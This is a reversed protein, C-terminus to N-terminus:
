RDLFRKPIDPHDCLNLELGVWEGSANKAQAGITYVGYSSVEALLARRGGDRMRRIWITSKPYSDHLHFLVPGELPSETISEVVADFLFYDTAVETIKVSLKLGNREALGGWRGKQPDEEDIVAPPDPPPSLPNIAIEPQTTSGLNGTSGSKELHERIASATVGYNAQGNEGQQLHMALIQWQFNFCPSGSSGAMSNIQYSVQSRESNISAIGKQDVQLTLPGDPSYQVMVVPMGLEVVAASGALDIWGRVRSSAQITESGLPRELRLVAYDLKESSALLWYGTKVPVVLGESGGIQTVGFDFRVRVSAAPEIGAVADQIAHRCTLVADPGILFGTSVFAGRLEIRCIQNQVAQLRTQWHEVGLSPNAFVKVLEADTSTATAQAATDSQQFHIPTALGLADFVDAIKQNQPRAAYAAKVLESTWGAREAAQILEFVQATISGPAVFREIPAGIGKRVLDEFEAPQFADLLARHLMQRHQSKLM